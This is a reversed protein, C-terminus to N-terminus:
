EQSGGTKTIGGDLLQQALERVKGTYEFDVDSLGDIINKVDEATDPVFKDHWAKEEEIEEEIEEQLIEEEKAVYVNDEELDDTECFVYAAEIPFGIGCYEGNFGDLDTDPADINIVNIYGDPVSSPQGYPAQPTVIEMTPDMELLIAIADAVTM